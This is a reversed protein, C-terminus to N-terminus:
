RGDPRYLFDGNLEALSGCGIHSATRGIEDRLIEIAKGAGKALGATAGWLTARGTFVFKAGLCRAVIVDSGRRIGSDLMVTIRDGAAAVVSALIDISAPARDVGFGGHNSVIVGDAGLEACRVADEPHLIGKVVLPGKWLSRLRELDRWTLSATRQSGYYRITDLESDSKAYKVYNGMRSLNGSAYEMLWTPHRLAELKDALSLSPPVKIGRRLQRDPDDTEIEYLTLFIWSQSPNRPQSGAIRFRRASIVGDVALMDKVHRNRYWDDYEDENGAKPTALVTLNYRAM